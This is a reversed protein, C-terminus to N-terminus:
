DTRVAAQQAQVAGRLSRVEDDLTNLRQQMADLRDRMEDLTEVTNKEFRELMSLQEQHQRLTVNHRNLMQGASADDAPGAPETGEIEAREESPQSQQRPRETVREPEAQELWTLGLIFVFLGILVGIGGLVRLMNRPGKIVLSDWIQKPLVPAVVYVIGGILALAGVIWLVFELPARETAGAYFILVGIAVLVLGAASVAQTNALFRGAYERAKEPWIVLPIRALIIIIGAVIALTALM